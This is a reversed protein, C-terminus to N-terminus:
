PLCFSVTIASDHIMQSSHQSTSKVYFEVNCGELVLDLQSFHIAKKIIKGKINLTVKVYYLM